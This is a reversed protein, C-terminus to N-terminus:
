SEGASRAGSPNLETIGLKVGMRVLDAASAASMKRMLQGRQEKVTVESTGLRAAIQKNMLGEVVGAMVDRERATLAAYRRTLEGLEGREQAATRERAIAGRVGAVLEDPLFPKTFFEVAGAKIAQVSMPISGRGTLFVVALPANMERLRRHLELGNLGPLGVDLIVCSPQALDRVADLFAQATPFTDVTLGESTLLRELSSRVSEDDDVVFVHPAQQDPSWAGHEQRLPELSM